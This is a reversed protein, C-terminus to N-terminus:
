RRHCGIAANGLTSVGLRWDRTQGETVEKPISAEKFARYDSPVGALALFLATATFEM